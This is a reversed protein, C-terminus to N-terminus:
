VQELTLQHMIKSKSQSKTKANALSLLVLSANNFRNKLIM